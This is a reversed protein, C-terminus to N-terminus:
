PPPQEGPRRLAARHEEIYAEPLGRAEFIEIARALHERGESPDGHELQLRGLAALTEGRNVHGPPLAARRVELARHLTAQAAAPDGARAQARGLEHLLDGVAYHSEGFNRELVEIAGKLQRLADPHDGALSALRGDMARAVSVHPHDPGLQEVMRALCPALRRQGAAPDGREGEAWALSICAGVTHPHDDGLVSAGLRHAERYASLAGDLDHLTTLTNGLSQLDVVATMADRQPPADRTHLRETHIRLAEAPRGNLLLLEARAQETTRRLPAAMGPATAHEVAREITALAEPLDGAVMTAIALNHWLVAELDYDRPQVRELQTQATRSWQRAAPLDGTHQGLSVLRVASRAAAPTDGDSAAEFYVRELRERAADVQGQMADIEALEIEVHRAAREIAYTAVYTRLTELVRRAGELDGAAVLLRARETAAAVVGRERGEPEPTCAHVDPLGAVLTWARALAERDGRGFLERLAGLGDGCESLCRQVRARAPPPLSCSGDWRRRLEDGYAALSEALAPWAEALPPSAALVSTLTPTEATAPQLQPPPPPCSSAESPEAPSPATAMLVAGVSVGAGMAVWPWVRRRPAAAVRLAQELQQMSAFRDEPRVQLGRQLLARLPRTALPSPPLAPGREKAALLADRDPGEFPRRDYLAEYLSVCFGYQDSAPTLPEARQQEPSMYHPTGGPRWSLTANGEPASWAATGAEARLEQTVAALGFDAVKVAGEHSMLVNSPKFDRHLLGADHAAALGQAAAVFAECIAARDPGTALWRRVDTGEVLEMAVFFRQQGHDAFFGVDFVEVVHPHRIRALVQAERLLRVDLEATEKGAKLVKIAVFRRLSPDFARYVIGLGGAGLRGAVAYRGVTVPPSPELGFAEHLSGLVQDIEVSGSAPRGQEFLEQLSPGPTM